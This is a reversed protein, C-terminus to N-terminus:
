WRVSMTLNGVSHRYLGKIYSNSYTQTYSMGFNGHAIVAGFQVNSALHRINKAPEDNNTDVNDDNENKRKGQLLSNHAVLDAMPKFVFYYQTKVLKGNRQFSGFQNVYGDFYPSMRGIRIMPYMTLADILSGAAAQVGGNVEIWNGISLFQKEAIFNINVLPMTRLQNDWGMPKQYNILSHFGKQVPEALSAPGRVGAMVETQFNYKKEPNYSHLSHIALLAGAYPYDHPQYETTSINNPTAMVQMLSWGYMNKSSDGAHPMLRDLFFRSKNKKEYFFDLRTGDSYAKDTGNGKINFYDDDEYVRFMRTPEKTQAFSKVSIMCLFIFFLQYVRKM